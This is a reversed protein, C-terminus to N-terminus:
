RFSLVDNKERRREWKTKERQVYLNTAFNKEKKKCKNKARSLTIARRWSLYKSSRRGKKEYTSLSYICCLSILKLWKEHAIPLITNCLISLFFILHWMYTTQKNIKKDRFFFVSPSSQSLEHRFQIKKKIKALYSVINQHKKARFQSPNFTKEVLDRSTISSVRQFTM